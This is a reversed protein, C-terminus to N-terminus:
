RDRSLPMVVYGYGDDTSFLAASDGSEIELTFNKSPDLVKLFDSVFRHDMSITISPGSYSIPLEVRSQGVDATSGTLVLQGEGFTFDIGRSDESAVVAAQRIASHVQGVSLDLRVADTRQPFVDRWRPFRGEVLRSFITARQSKVLIDNGRAAIRIEADGDALARDILQMSKTPVITMTDRTLHEGISIAPGEMKALRRGDTGVAVIKKAEFELLVGGLAYRSSETDTAFVTRRVLEKFLRAPVEHCKEEQFSAVSPFEDPNASPLNFKSREGKVEAGKDSVSISLKADTSERLISGFRAVPMLASGGIQIEVDPIEIRVGIEMDTASLILSNQTAEMKVNQLVPKPSRAPAVSAAVSFAALLKEREITFKM